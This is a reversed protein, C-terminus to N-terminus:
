SMIAFGPPLPDSLGGLWAFRVGTKGERLIYYSEGDEESVVGTVVGQSNLAPLLMSDPLELWYLELPPIDRWSKGKYLRLFSGVSPTVILLLLRPFAASPATHGTLKEYAPADEVYLYRPKDGLELASPPIEPSLARPLLNAFNVADEADLFTNDSFFLDFAWVPKSQAHLDRILDLLTM